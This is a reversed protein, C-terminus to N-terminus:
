RKSISPQQKNKPRLQLALALVLQQQQEQQQEQRLERLRGLMSLELGLLNLRVLKLM